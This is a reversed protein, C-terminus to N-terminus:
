FMGYSYFNSNVCATLGIGNQSFTYNNAGLPGLYSKSTANNIIAEELSNTQRNVFFIRWVLQSLYTYSLSMVPMDRAANDSVIKIIETESTWLGDEFRKRVFDGNARHVFFDFTRPKSDIAVLGSRKWALHTLPHQRLGYKVGLGIAIGTAVFVVVAWITKRRYWRRKRPIAAVTPTGGVVEVSRIAQAAHVVEKNSDGNGYILEWFINSKEHSHVPATTVTIPDM